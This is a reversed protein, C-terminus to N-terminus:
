RDAHKGQVCWFCWCESHELGVEDHYDHKVAMMVIGVSTKIAICKM